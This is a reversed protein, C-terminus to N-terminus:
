MEVCCAAKYGKILDYEEFSYKKNNVNQRVGIVRDDQIQIAFDTMSLAMGTGLAKLFSEKLVWIRYFAEEQASAEDQDIVYAYEEPAFFRRAIKLNTQEMQQIDCGIEMDSFAAMVYEGSHSLSFRIQPYERFFPKGNQNTGYVMDCERLGYESLGRNILMGAAVSRKKDEPFKVKDAKERRYASLSNYCRDYVVEEDLKRISEYFITVMHNIRDFKQIQSFSFGARKSLNEIKWSINVRYQKGFYDM